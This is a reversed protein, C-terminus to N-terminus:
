GGDRVMTLFSLRLKALEDAPLLGRIFLYGDRQMRTRIEPPDDLVPTSDLFTPM